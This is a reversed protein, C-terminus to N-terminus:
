AEGKAREVASCIVSWLPSSEDIPLGHERVARQVAECAALLNAHTLLMTQFRPELDSVLVAVGYENGCECSADYVNAVEDNLALPQTKTDTM